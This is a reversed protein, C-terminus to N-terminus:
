SGRGRRIAHKETHLHGALDSLAHERPKASVLIAPCHRLKARRLVSYMM